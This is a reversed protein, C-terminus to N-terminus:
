SVCILEKEYTNLQFITLLLNGVEFQEGMDEELLINEPDSLIDPLQQIYNFDQESFVMSICLIIIFIM